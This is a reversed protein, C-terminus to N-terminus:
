LLYGVAVVACIEAIDRAADDGTDEDQFRVEGLIFLVPREEPALVLHRHADAGVIDKQRHSHIGELLIRKFILFVISEQQKIAVSERPACACDAVMFISTSRTM